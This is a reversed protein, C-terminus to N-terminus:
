NRPLKIPEQGPAIELKTPQGQFLKMQRAARRQDALKVIEGIAPEDSDEAKLRSAADAKTLGVEGAHEAPGQGRCACPEFSQGVGAAPVPLLGDASVSGLLDFGMAGYYYDELLVYVCNKGVRFGKTTSASLPTGNLNGWSPALVQNTQTNLWIQITDDARVRLSLNADKFGPLLCFCKRFITYGPNEPNVGAGSTFTNRASIWNTGPLAPAWVSHPQIVYAPWVAPSTTPYSAINIWYQDLTTSPGFVAAYPQFISHNYGTNLPMTTSGMAFSSTLLLAVLVTILNIKRFM